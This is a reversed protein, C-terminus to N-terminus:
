KSGRGPRITKKAKPCVNRKRHETERWGLGRGCRAWVQVNPKPDGALELAECVRDYERWLQKTHTRAIDDPMDRPSAYGLLSWREIAAGKKHMDFYRVECVGLGGQEWLRWHWAFLKGKGKLENIHTRYPPVNIWTMFLLTALV